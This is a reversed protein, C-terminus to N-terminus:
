QSSLSSAPFSGSSCCPTRGGHNVTSTSNLRAGVALVRSPSSIDVQVRAKDVELSNIVGRGLTTTPPARASQRGLFISILNGTLEVFAHLSAHAAIVALLRFPKVNGMPQPWSTHLEGSRKSTKKAEARYASYRMLLMITRKLSSGSIGFSKTRGSSPTPPFVSANCQRTYSSSDPTHDAQYSSSDPM